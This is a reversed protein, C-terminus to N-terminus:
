SMYIHHNKNYWTIECLFGIEMYTGLNMFCFGDWTTSIIIIRLEVIPSIMQLNIDGGLDIDNSKINHFEIYFIKSISNWLM